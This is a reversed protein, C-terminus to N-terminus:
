RRASVLKREHRISRPLRICTILSLGPYVNQQGMQFSRHFTATVHVNFRGEREFELDVSGPPLKPTWVPYLTGNRKRRLSVRYNNHRLRLAELLKPKFNMSSSTPM